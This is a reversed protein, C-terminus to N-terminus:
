GYVAWSHTAAVAAKHLTSRAVHTVICVGETADDIAFFEVSTKTPVRTNIVIRVSTYGNLILVDRIDKEDTLGEVAEFIDGM